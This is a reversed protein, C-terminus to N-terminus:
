LMYKRGVDNDYSKFASLTLTSAYGIPVAGAGGDVVVVVAAGVVVVVEVVVVVAAGVVVVVLVVVVVVVAGVVVVVLVLVVVVVVVAAGVVVVEVLVVDVVVAAGIQLVGVSFLKVFTPPVSNSTAHVSLLEPSVHERTATSYLLLESKELGTPEAM